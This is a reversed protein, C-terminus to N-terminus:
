QINNDIPPNPNGGQGQNTDDGPNQQGSDGEPPNPNEEPKNDEPKSEDPKNEEPKPEVPANPTTVPKNQVPPKWNTTNQTSQNINQQISEEQNNDLNISEFEKRIDKVVKMAEVKAKDVIQVKYELLEPKGIANIVEEGVIDKLLIEEIGIALTEVKEYGKFRNFFNDIMEVKLSSKCKLLKARKENIAREDSKLFDIVLGKYMENIDTYKEFDIGYTKSDIIIYNTFEMDFNVKFIEKITKEDDVKVLNRLEDYEGNKEVQMTGPYTTISLGEETSNQDMVGISNIVQKNDAGNELIIIGVNGNLQVVDGEAALSIFDMNHKYAYIGMPMAFILVLSIFIAVRNINLKRSILMKSKNFKAEKTDTDVHNLKWINYDMYGKNDILYNTYDKGTFLACLATICFNSIANFPLQIIFINAIQIMLILFSLVYRKRFLSPLFGFAATLTDINYSILKINGLKNILTVYKFVNGRPKVKKFKPDIIKFEKLLAHEQSILVNKKYEKKEHETMSNIFKIYKDYNPLVEEVDGFERLGGYEIWMAKNCFQKIQGTAHSVFFITKGREKFENMKDLCKQTFTPDGVSLAEDIVLIDPDMYVSIAFGLRSRMGSSYTRIPQTIFDGIDAFDIIEQTIKEIDDKKYGMMIAKLEINEMGTLFSNLGLGIAILSAEGKIEIDGKSPISVGGIINSLTSKGSGNLGVLGVVDGKEVKFSIDKLAYFDKGAGKPLLLDLLKQKPGSYMKYCKSVNNAIVSYKDESM